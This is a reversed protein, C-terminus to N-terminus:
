SLLLANQRNAIEIKIVWNWALGKIKLNLNMHTFCEKLKICRLLKTRSDIEIVIEQEGLHLTILTTSIYEM